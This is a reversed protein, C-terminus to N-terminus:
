AVWYGRTFLITNIALLIVSVLLWFRFLLKNKTQALVIFAPFLVLVYRPMSSFTGTLTPALFALASFIIYSRRTTFFGRILLLLFAISAIFEQSITFYLLSSRDVTVAMKFYRYIVQYLLIIKDSRGGGFSSQAHLFYLPDNFNHYLYAMYALMGLAPLLLPLYHWPRPREKKPLERYKEYILAPILFIGVIRTASALAALVLSLGQRRRRLAYFSTVVLLLFLSESYFSAFYFSTPFLALVLITKAATSAPYDLAVLKYLFYLCLFFSAHSIFLGSALHNNFLFNLYRITMPYLPFFAQTFQAFYGERAISLYHVGDFNAWSWFLPHGSPELLSERYPFRDGFPFLALGIAAILTLFIRWSILRIFLQKPNM